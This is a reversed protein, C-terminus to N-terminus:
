PEPVRGIGPWGAPSGASQPCCTSTPSGCRTVADHMILRSLSLASCPSASMCARDLDACASRMGSVHLHMQPTACLAPSVPLLPLPAPGPVLSAIPISLIPTPAQGPVQATTAELPTPAAPPSQAPGQSFSTATPAGGSDLSQNAPSVAPSVAVYSQAATSPPVPPYSSYPPSPSFPPPPPMESLNANPPAALLSAYIPSPPTSAAKLSSSPPPPPLAGASPPAPSILSEITVSREVQGAHCLTNDPLTCHYLHPRQDYASQAQHKALQSAPICRLLVPLILSCAEGSGLLLCGLLVLLRCAGPGLGAERIGPMM